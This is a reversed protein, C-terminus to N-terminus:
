YAEAPYWLRRSVQSPLVQVSSEDGDSEGPPPCPLVMKPTDHVLVVPADQTAAPEYLLPM